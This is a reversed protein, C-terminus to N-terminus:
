VEDQWEIGLVAAFEDVTSVVVCREPQDFMDKPVEALTDASAVCAWVGEDPWCFVGSVQLMITLLRDIFERSFPPRNISFGTVLDTDDEHFHMVGGYHEGDPGLVGWSGDGWPDLLDGLAEVVISRDFPALEGGKFAYLFVDLSM